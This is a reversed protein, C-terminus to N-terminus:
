YYQPIHYETSCLTSDTGIRTATRKTAATITKTTRRREDDDDDDDDNTTRREDNTKRCEDDPDNRLHSPPTIM